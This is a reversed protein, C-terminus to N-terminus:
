KHPKLFGRGGKIEVEEYFNQAYHSTHKPDNDQMLKHLSPPPFKEQIFPVLTQRFIQCFLPADM